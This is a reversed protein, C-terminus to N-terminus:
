EDAEELARRAREPGLARALVGRDAVLRAYLRLWLKGERRVKIWAHRPAPLAPLLARALEATATSASQAEDSARVEDAATLAVRLAKVLEARALADAMALAPQLRSSGPVETIGWAVIAGEEIRVTERPPSELALEGGREVLVEGPELLSALLALAIV